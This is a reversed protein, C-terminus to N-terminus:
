TPTVNYRHDVSDRPVAGAQREERLPSNSGEIVDCNRSGPCTRVCTSYHLDFRSCVPCKGHRMIMGDSGFRRERSIIM